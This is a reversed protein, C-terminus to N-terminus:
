LPYGREDFIEEFITAIAEALKEATKGSLARQTKLLYAITRAGNFVRDTLRVFEAPDLEEELKLMTRRVAVRVASIEDTLSEDMAKNILAAVEKLSYAEAYFDVKESEDQADM